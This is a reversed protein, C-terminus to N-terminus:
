NAIEDDARPLQYQGLLGHVIAGSMRECIEAWMGLAKEQVLAITIHTGDKDIRLLLLLSDLFLTSSGLAREEITATVLDIYLLFLDNMKRFHCAIGCPHPRALDTRVCKLTVSQNEAINFFAIGGDRSPPNHPLFHALYDWAPNSSFCAERGTDCDLDM